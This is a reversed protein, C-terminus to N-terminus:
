ALFKLVVEITVVVLAFGIVWAPKIKPAKKLGEGYRMLGAMGSPMSTKKDKAM